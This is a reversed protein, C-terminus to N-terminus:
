GKGILCIDAKKGKGNGGRGKEKEQLSVLCCGAMNTPAGEEGRELGSFPEKGGEKGRRRGQFQKEGGQTHDGVGGREGQALGGASLSGPRKGSCDFSPDGEGERERPLLLLLM